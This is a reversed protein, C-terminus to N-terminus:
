DGSDRDSTAENNKIDYSVRTHEEVISMTKKKKFSNSFVLYVGLFNM